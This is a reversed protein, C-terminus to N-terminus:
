RPREDRVKRFATLRAHWQTDSPPLAELEETTAVYHEPRGKKVNDPPNDRHYQTLREYTDNM